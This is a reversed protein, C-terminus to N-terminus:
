RDVDVQYDNYERGTKESKKKGKFIVWIKEGMEANLMLNSLVGNLWVGVKKGDSTELIAIDGIDGSGKRIGKFVGEIEQDIKLEVDKAQWMELKENLNIRAM